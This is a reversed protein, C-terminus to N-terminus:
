TPSSVWLSIDAKGIESEFQNWFRFLVLSMGDFKTLIFKPFKVNVREENLIKDKNEKEKFQMQLKMEQTKLEEQM